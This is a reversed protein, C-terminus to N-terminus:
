EIDIGEEWTKLFNNCKPCQVQTSTNNKPRALMGTNGFTKRVFTKFVTKCYGCQYEKLTKSAKKDKDVM